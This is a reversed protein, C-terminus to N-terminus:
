RVVVKFDTLKENSKIKVLYLGNKLAITTKGSKAILNSVQSGNLGYISIMDGSTTGCVILKNDVGYVNVNSEPSNIGTVDVNAGTVFQSFTDFTGTFTSNSNAMTAASNIYAGSVFRGILPNAVAEIINSPSLSVVTSSSTAPALDWEKQNYRVGYVPTGSLTSYVKAAFTTTTAPNVSVPDFSSTSAGIPLLTTTGATVPIILKGAGNTVIYSASSAGTITGTSAITLDNAGLSLKGSTLSLTGNLTGANALSVGGASNINLTCVTSTFAMPLLGTWTQPNTGNLNITFTGLTGSNKIIGAATGSATSNNNIVNGKINISGTGANASNSGYQVIAASGITFNGDVNLIATPNTSGSSEFMSIKGSNHIVNGKVNFTVNAPSPASNIISLSINSSASNNLILDGYVTHVLTGAYNTTAGRIKGATTATKNITLNGHVDLALASSSGALGVSGASWILNGCTFTGTSIPLSTMTGSFELTSAYDVTVNAWATGLFPNPGTLQYNSGATLNLTGSITIYNVTSSTAQTIVTGQVTLNKCTKGTAEATITQGAQIWVNDTATPANAAPTADTWQGPTVCILWNSGDTGWNGTAKSGFDGTAQAMISTSNLLVAIVACLYFLKTKRM